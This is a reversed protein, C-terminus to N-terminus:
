AALSRVEINRIVMDVHEAIFRLYGSSKPSTTTGILDSDLFFKVGTESDLELRVSRFEENVVGSDGYGGGPFTLYKTNWVGIFVSIDQDCHVGGNDFLTMCIGETHPTSKIQAQVAIPRSLTDVMQLVSGKACTFQQGGTEATSASCGKFSLPAPTPAATTPAETLHLCPTCTATPAGAYWEKTEYFDRAWEGTCPHTTVPEADCSQEPPAAHYTIDLESTSTTANMCSELKHRQEVPGALLFVDQLCQIRTAATFVAKRAVEALQVAEHVEDQKQTKGARCSSYDSCAGTLKEHYRCFSGEFLAQEQDCDRKKDDHAKTAEDCAAKNVTLSANLPGAWLIIKRLCEHMAHFDEPVPTPDYAAMCPPMYQNTAATIYSACKEDKEGKLVKEANRCQSHGLEAESSTDKTGAIDALEEDCEAVLELARDVEGQAETHAARTAEVMQKMQERIDALVEQQTDTIIETGNIVGVALKQVAALTRNLDATGKRRADLWGHRSVKAVTRALLVHDQACEGRSCVAAGSTCVPALIWLALMASRAFSSSHVMAFM